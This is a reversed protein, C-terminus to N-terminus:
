RLSRLIIERIKREEASSASGSIIPVSFQGNSITMTTVNNLIDYATGSFTGSITAGSFSTVTLTGSSMMYGMRSTDNLNANMKYFGAANATAMSAFPYDGITVGGPKTITLSFIDASVMSYDKYAYVIIKSPLGPYSFAGAGSNGARINYFVGNAFMSDQRGLYYGFSLTGATTFEESSTVTISLTKTQVPVSNDAITLTTAGAGATTVILNGSSNIAATAVSSDPQTKITYPPLGGSMVVASTGPAIISVATPLLTLPSTVLVSVSLLLRPVSNDAIVVTTNGSASGNATMTLASGNVSASIKSADYSYLSYPPTGGAISDVLSTGSLISVSMANAHLPAVVTVPISISDGSGNQDRLVIATNGVGVAFVNVITDALSCTAVQASPPVSVVFPRSGSQLHIGGAGQIQLSVASPVAYFSQVRIEVPLVTKGGADKVTVTTTGKAKGRINLFSRGERQVILTSDPYIKSSDLIAVVSYPKTGGWIEVSADAEPSVTLLPSMLSFPLNNSPPPEVKKEPASGGGDCGWLLATALLAIMGLRFIPHWSQM